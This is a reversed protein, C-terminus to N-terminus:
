SKNIAKREHFCGVGYSGAAEKFCDNANLKILVPYSNGVEKRVARYVELVIRKRKESSGGYKDDRRNMYPSLFQNLLYGHAAHLQVADFGAFLSSM